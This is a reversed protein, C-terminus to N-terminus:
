GRCPPTVTTTALSTIIRFATKLIKHCREIQYTFTIKQAEVSFWQVGLM